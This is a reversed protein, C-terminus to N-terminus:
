LRVQTLLFTSCFHSIKKKLILNPALAEVRGAFHCQVATWSASFVLVSVRLAELCRNFPWITYIGNCIVSMNYLIMWQLQPTIWERRARRGLLLLHTELTELSRESTIAKPEIQVWVFLSVSRCKCTNITWMWSEFHQELSGFGCCSNESVFM